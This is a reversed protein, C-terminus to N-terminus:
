LHISEHMPAVRALFPNADVETPAKEKEKQICSFEFSLVEGSSVLSAKGLGAQHLSHNRTVGLQAMDVPDVVGVIIRLLCNALINRPIGSLTQNAGIFVVNLSRGKTVLREITSQAQLSSSIISALEDAIVLLTSPKNGLLVEAERQDLLRNLFSWFENADNDLNTLLRIAELDSFGLGGKFDIAVVEIEPGQLLNKILQTKGSGTPGVVLAHHGQTGLPLYLPGHSSMGLFWNSSKALAEFEDGDFGAPKSFVQEYVRDRIKAPWLCVWHSLRRYGVFVHTGSFSVEGELERQKGAILWIVASAGSLFLLAWNGSSSGLYLGYLMGPLLYM